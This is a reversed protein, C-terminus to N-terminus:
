GKPPTANTTSRPRFSNFVGGNGQARYAAAAEAGLLTELRANLDTMTARLKEPDRPAGSSDSMMAAMAQNQLKYLEYTKAATMGPMKEAARAVMGYAFNGSKLYANAGDDGLTARLKDMYAYVDPTAPAFSGSFSREHPNRAKEIALLALYQEETVTLERLAWGIREAPPSKHREYEAFDEPSLAAAVDALREKELNEYAQRRAEAEERTMTGGASFLDARLDDYDREVRLIAAIKDDGLAGYELRRQMPDLTAVPAGAPGMIEEQLRLLERAAATQLKRTERGPSLLQWFPLKAVDAFTRERLMEGIFRVVVNPPFGAARLETALARLETESAGATHWVFSTPAAAVGDKAAAANAGAVSKTAGSASAAGAASLAGPAAASGPRAFAFWVNAALSVALLAIPLFNKM